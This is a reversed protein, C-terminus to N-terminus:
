TVFAGRHHRLVARDDAIVHIAIVDFRTDTDSLGAHALYHRAVRVLRRQKTPSVAEEPQGASLSRRTKVEVFVLTADDLAVIDVEGSRCRWNRDTVTMGIRELYAAAADEGRRALESRTM